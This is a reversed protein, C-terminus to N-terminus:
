NNEKPTRHLIIFESEVDYPEFNGFEMIQSNSCIELTREDQWCKCYKALLIIDINQACLGIKNDFMDLKTDMRLQINQWIVSLYLFSLMLGVYRIYVYISVHRNGLVTAYRVIYKLLSVIHIYTSTWLMILRLSGSWELFFWGLM